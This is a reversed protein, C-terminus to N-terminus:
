APGLLCTPCKLFLEFLALITIICGAVFIGLLLALGTNEKLPERM